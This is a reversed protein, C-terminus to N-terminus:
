DDRDRRDAFIEFLGAAGQGGGVCMSVVGWKAGRRRGELLIHGAMRAGSMGYPHGISIAGGNVNLRDDPIGLRDRCPVLQAAFAENIEWLDIDEIALGARKLLRPIAVAPGIGMEDPAVGAVAFGRLAGLPALGRASAEAEAMVVLAAAGDSLQSANGATVSKGEGMVPALGSLGEATTGPRNCEDRDIRVPEPRTEGTAKDTVIRVAEMPVIEDDFHGAEQAQATRHQSQLAYADQVARSVGYRGAVVEATELMSLYYGEPVRTSQYRYGNWHSNQVLSISEVGGALAVDVGECRIMHSAIAIANLGSACQRDVTAGAVSDPLGAGQAIHRAVNVGASGQTLAAGFIAEEVEAGTLGARALAARVAPAALGPVDLDNFAGRYAKGIPTRATSVIVADRM